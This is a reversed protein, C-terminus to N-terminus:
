KSDVRRGRNQKRLWPRGQWNRELSLNISTDNCRYTWGGYKWARIAASRNHCWETERTRDSVSGAMTAVITAALTTAAFFALTVWGRKSLFLCVGGQNWTMVGKRCPSTLGEWMNIYDVPNQQIGFFPRQRQRLVPHVALVGGGRYSLEGM